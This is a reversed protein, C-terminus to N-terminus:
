EQELELRAQWGQRHRKGRNVSAQSNARTPVNALSQNELRLVRAPTHGKEQSPKCLSASSRTAHCALSVVAESPLALALM